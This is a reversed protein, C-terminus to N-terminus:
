WRVQACSPLSVAFLMRTLLLAPYASRARPYLFLALGCLLHGAVAIWRVGKRDAVLGWIFYMSLAVLEDALTLNGTATGERGEKVDALQQLVAPQLVNMSVLWTISLLGSSLLALANLSTVEDSLGLWRTFRSPAPPAYYYEDVPEPEELGVLSATTLGAMSRQPSRLDAHILSHSCQLYNM